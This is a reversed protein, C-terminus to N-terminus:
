KSCSAIKECVYTIEDEKLDNGSPLNMGRASLLDAAPFSRSAGLKRYIPQVHVPYFFTRTEVGDEELREMLEKRSLRFSDEVLISYMWYVNKAWKAEPPLTVKRGLPGLLSNYLRANRRRAEVFSDIRKMQALGLAAQLGSLRYGFGLEEHYFHKGGRGFAHARLWRGREAIEEDNTVLMGGEGTNHLSIMGWGGVFNEYGAVEFDYVSGSFPVAEVRQVEIFSIDSNALSLLRENRTLTLLNHRLVTRKLTRFNRMQGVDHYHIQGEKVPIRDYITHGNNTRVIRFVYADKVKSTRKKVGSIKLEREHGRELGLTFPIDNVLCIFQLGEALSRSVTKATEDYLPNRRDSKKHGDGALYANLFALQVSRPSSLVSPPVNKGAAGRGTGVVHELIFSLGKGGLSVTIKSSGAYIRSDVWLTRKALDRVREALAMESFGFTFEVGDTGFSGEAIFYGLFEALSEDMELVPKSRFSNGRIEYLDPRLVADAARERNLEDREPRTMHGYRWHGDRARPEGARYIGFRHLLGRLPAVLDIRQYPPNWASVRKPCVVFDGQKLSGAKVQRVQGDRLTFLSHSKTVTVRKGGQLTVALVEENCPHALFGTIPRFAMKFDKDFALCSYGRWDKEEFSGIPLIQVTREPTLVVVKEDGPISTIIKNAYFSFCGADGLSGARKGRYEAGHAEAADEIVKLGHKRAIENLPDMDVPHGYTHVPIIAKTRSTIKSEVASVDINWTGPESDVLVPTAGTYAVANPTAIMTFTPIIVEDRPGVRLAALALHLATTGSNCAVGYKCGCFRAFEEEFREVYPSIGSVWGEKVCQAVMEADEPGLTPRSVPIKVGAEAKPKSLSPDQTM